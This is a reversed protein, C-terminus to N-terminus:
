GNGAERLERSHAIHQEISLPPAELADWEADIEARHAAAYERQDKLARNIEIVAERAEDSIPQGHRETHPTFRNM